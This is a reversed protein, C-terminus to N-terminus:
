FRQAAWFPEDLGSTGGAAGDCHAHKALPFPTLDCFGFAVSGSGIIINGMSGRLKLLGTM